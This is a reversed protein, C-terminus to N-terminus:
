VHESTNVRRLLIYDTPDPPLEYHQSIFGRLDSLRARLVVIDDHSCVLERELKELRIQLDRKKVKRKEM